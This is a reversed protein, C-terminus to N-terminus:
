EYDFGIPLVKFKVEIEKLSNKLILIKEDRKKLFLLIAFINTLTLNISELCKITSCCEIQKILEKLEKKDNEM